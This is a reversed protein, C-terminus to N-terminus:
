GHYGSQASNHWVGRQDQGLLNKLEEDGRPVSEDVAAPAEAIHAFM